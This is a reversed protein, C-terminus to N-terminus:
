SRLSIGPPCADLASRYVCYIEDGFRDSRKLKFKVTEALREIGEGDALTPATRGGFIVPCITLHLEDVFGLRFMPANLEGGGECLLRKVGWKERLWKLAAAFDLAEGRSVFLADAVKSLAKLRAPPAAETSLLLIPSFRQTFIHAKPSISATRSVIVRLNFEALGNEIRQRRYRKGGPGLTVKGNSVTRAGAMVADAQSRLEMMHQQDRESGFPEFRRTDPAIKGDATMAINVAVFPRKVIAM